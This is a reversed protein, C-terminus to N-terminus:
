KGGERQGAVDNHDPNTLQVKEVPTGEASFIIPRRHVAPEHADAPQGDPGQAAAKHAWSVPELNQEAPQPNRAALTVPEQGPTFGTFGEAAAPLTQGSIATLGTEM